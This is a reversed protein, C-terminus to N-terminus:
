ALERRWPRKDQPARRPRDQDKKEWHPSYARPKGPVYPPRYTLPDLHEVGVTCRNEYSHHLEVDVLDGKVFVGVVTPNCRCDPRTSRTRMMPPKNVTATM